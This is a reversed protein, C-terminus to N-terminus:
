FDLLGSFGASLLKYSRVPMATGSGAPPIVQSSQARVYFNTAPIARSIGGLEIRGEVAMTRALAPQCSLSCDLELAPAIESFSRLSLAGRQWWVSEAKFTPLGLAEFGPIPEASFSFRQPKFFPLTLELRQWGTGLRASAVSSPDASARGSAFSLGVSLV